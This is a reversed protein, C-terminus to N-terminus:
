KKLVPIKNAHSSLTGNKQVNDYHAQASIWTEQCIECELGYAWCPLPQEAQLNQKKFLNGIWSLFGM